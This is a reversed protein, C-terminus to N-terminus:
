EPLRGRLVEVNGNQNRMLTSPQNGSLDGGDVYFDVNDDFYAQAEQVTVAPKVGALNASPALLPGTNQLLDRLAGHAPVRFALTGNVPHLYKPVTDNVPLIISVPGPWYKEALQQDAHTWDVLHNAQSGDALLTICGKEAPRQRVEYMREISAPFTTGVVLGYLTDTPVVGIAGSSLLAVVEPDTISKFLRM